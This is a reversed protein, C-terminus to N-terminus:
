AEKIKYKWRFPVPDENIQVLYQLIRDMLEEKSSVRIGRLVTKTLKAFFSEIINLWSAHVPTFVFEFRNPKTKLFVQTEESIHASHNDLIIQIKKGKPYSADVM